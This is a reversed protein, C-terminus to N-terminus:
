NNGSNETAKVGVYAGTSIGMLILIQNTLITDDPLVTSKAVFHIYIVGVIISWIVHQLRHISVGNEDSLIDLFFGQSPQDQHRTGNQQQSNDIVKATATTGMAIGLLILNANSLVPVTFGDKILVYIFSSIIIVTWYALQSRSLSYPARPKKINQTTAAAKFADEDAVNDSLMCTKTAMVIVLVAMVLLILFYIVPTM